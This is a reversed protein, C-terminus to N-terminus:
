FRAFASRKSVRLPTLVSTSVLIQTSTAQLISGGSTGVLLPTLWDGWRVYLTQTQQRYITATHLEYTNLRSLWQTRHPDIIGSYGTNTARVAWRDSEIARMMKPMTNPLCQQATILMTLASSLSVVPQRVGSISLSPLNMVSVQSRPWLRILCNTQSVLLRTLM